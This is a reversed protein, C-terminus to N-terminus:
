QARNAQPPRHDKLAFRIATLAMVRGDHDTGELLALAESILPDPAPKLPTINGPTDFYDGLKLKKEIQRVSGDGLNRVGALWQNIQSPSKGIARAFDAQNGNFKSNILALLQNKRDM